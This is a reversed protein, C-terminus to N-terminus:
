RQSCCCQSLEAWTAPPSITTAPEPDANDVAPPVQRRRATDLGGASPEIEVSGSPDADHAEEFTM